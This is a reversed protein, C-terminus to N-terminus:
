WVTAHPFPVCQVNVRTDAIAEQQMEAALEKCALVQTHVSHVKYEVDPAGQATVGFYAVLVAWLVHEM